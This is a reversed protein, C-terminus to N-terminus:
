QKQQLGKLKLGLKVMNWMANNDLLSRSELGSDLNRRTHKTWHNSIGGLLTKNAFVGSIANIFDTGNNPGDGLISGSSGLLGGLLDTAFTVISIDTTLPRTSLANELFTVHEGNVVVSEVSTNIQLVGRGLPGSQSALFPGLNSIAKQLDIYGVLSQTMNGPKITIDNLKLWGIELDGSMLKFKIDGFSLSMPSRNPIMLDGSINSGDTNNFAFKLKKIDLGRFRNLGQIQITKDLRPHSKLAGLSITAKTGRVGIDYSGPADLFGGFWNEVSKLDTIPQVQDKISFNTKGNLHLPPVEVTLFPSFEPAGKDYMQLVFENTSAKLGPPTSFSSDLSVKIKDPAVVNLAGSRVPLTQQNVILQVVAPLAVVFVIPLLIALFIITGLLYWKWKNQIHAVSWDKGKRAAAAAKERTLERRPSNKQIIHDDTDVTSANELPPLEEGDLPRGAHENSTTGVERGNGGAVRAATAQHTTAHYSDDDHHEERFASAM